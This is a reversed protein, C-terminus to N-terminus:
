GPNTEHYAFGLVVTVLGIFLGTWAVQWGMGDSFIGSQPSHPPRRMVNREAPEVRSWNKPAASRWDPRRKLPRVGTRQARQWRM